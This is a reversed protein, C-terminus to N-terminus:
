GVVIAHKTMVLVSGGVIYMYLSTGTMALVSEVVIIYRMMYRYSFCVWSCYCVENYVRIVLLQVHVHFGPYISFDTLFFILATTKITSYSSLLCYSLNFFYYM